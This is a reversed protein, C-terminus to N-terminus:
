YTAKSIKTKHGDTFPKTTRGKQTVDVGNKVLILKIRYHDTGMEKAIM